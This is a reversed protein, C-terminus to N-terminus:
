KQKAPQLKVLSYHVHSRPELYAVAEPEGRLRALQRVPGLPGAADERDHRDVLPGGPQPEGVLGVANRDEIVGVHNGDLTLVAENPLPPLNGGRGEIHSSPSRHSGMREGNADWNRM